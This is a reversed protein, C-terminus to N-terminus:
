LSEKFFGIKNQVFIIWEEVPKELRLSM